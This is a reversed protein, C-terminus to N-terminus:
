LARILENLLLLSDARREEDTSYSGRWVEGRWYDYIEEPTWHRDIAGRYGRVIESGEWPAWPSVLFGGRRRDESLWVAGLPGWLGDDQIANVIVYSVPGEGELEATTPERALSFVSALDIHVTETTM